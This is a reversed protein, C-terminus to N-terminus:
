GSGLSRILSQWHAGTDSRHPVLAARTHCPTLENGRGLNLMPRTRSFYGGFVCRDLIQGHDHTPPKRGLPLM